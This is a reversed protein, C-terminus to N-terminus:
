LLMKKIAQAITAAPVAMLVVPVFPLLLTGALMVISKPDVPVFRMQYVNAATQNLDTVVAFDPVSLTNQDVRAPPVLWKSELQAGVQGALTGYAFVGRRLERALRGSFATLPAVFLAVAVALCVAAGALEAMGVTGYHLVVNALRGAVVSAIALGIITFARV